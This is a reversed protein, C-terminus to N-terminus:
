TTQYVTNARMFYPKIIDKKLILEENIIEYNYSNYDHLIGDSDNYLKILEECVDLRKNIDIEWLYLVNIGHYKRLYTKKSKDRKIDKKQIEHLTNYDPYKIPNAHWYDGMVEIALNKHVDYFDLVYYKMQIEEDFDYTLTSLLERTKIQITTNTQPFEGNAIRKATRIRMQEIQEPTKVSGFQPHNEGIYYKGRYEYYCEQSCFINKTKDLYYKTVKTSCNCNDCTAHLNQYNYVKDGILKESRYKAYCERSCFHWNNKLTISEHVKFKTDCQDCGVLIKEKQPNPNNLVFFKNRCSSTCFHLKSRMESPLKEFEVNCTSCEVKIRDITKREYSSILKSFEESKLWVMRCGDECFYREQSIIRYNALHFEKNCNYCNVSKGNRNKLNEKGKSYVDSCNKSCFHNKARQIETETREIGVKCQSCNLQIRQKRPIGNGIKHKNSCEKSCFLNKNRKLEWESREIEKSCYSCDAVIKKSNWTPKGILFDDHCRRCCFHNKTNQIASFKKGFPKECFDCVLSISANSGKTLHSIEVEFEEGHSLRPYGLDIYHTVNRNSWKAKAKQGEVIM